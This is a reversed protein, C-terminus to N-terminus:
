TLLLLFIVHTKSYWLPLGSSRPHIPWEFGSVFCIMVWSHTHKNCYATCSWFHIFLGIRWWNTECVVWLCISPDTCSLRLELAYAISHRREHVLVDFYVSAGCRKLHYKNLFDKKLKQLIVFRILHSIETVNRIVITQIKSWVANHLFVLLASPASLCQHRETKHNECYYAALGCWTIDSYM